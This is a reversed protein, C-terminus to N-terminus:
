GDMDYRASVTESAVSPSPSAASEAAVNTPSTGATAHTNQKCDRCVWSKPTEAGRVDVCKSHWQKHCVTCGQLRKRSLKEGCLPCKQVHGPSEVTVAAGAPPAAAAGATAAATGSDVPPVRVVGPLAGATTAPVPAAPPPAAESPATSGPAQEGVDIEQGSGPESEPEPQLETPQAPRVAPSAGAEAKGPADPPTPEVAKCEKCRWSPGPKQYKHEYFGVCAWHFLKHCGQCETRRSVRPTTCVHCVTFEGVASLDAGVAAAPAGPDVSSPIAPEGNNADPGVSNQGASSGEWM